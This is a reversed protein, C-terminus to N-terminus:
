APTYGLHHLLHPQLDRWVTLLDGPGGLDAVQTVELGQFGCPNIRTFPELDMNVNFALGHYTCGNRVRLGLAAIKRGDVYVGPADPRNVAAIRYGALTDIVANELAEVLARVGLKLRRLNLLPYVVLQGPGHYTVQGGRDIDIVPIDGPALVHEHKGALGLTFVPPHEVQWIRDREEGKRALTWEKMEAWVPEFDRRGLESFEPPTPTQRASAPAAM